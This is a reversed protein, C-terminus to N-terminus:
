LRRTYIHEGLTYGLSVLLPGIDHAAKTPQVVVKVGLAKLQDDCFRILQKGLGVSRYQKLLFLGDQYAFLVNRYHM